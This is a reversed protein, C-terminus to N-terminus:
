IHISLVIGRVNEQYSLAPPHTKDAFLVIKFYGKLGVTSLHFDANYLIGIRSCSSKAYAINFDKM